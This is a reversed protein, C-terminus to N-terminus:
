LLTHTVYESVMTAVSSSIGLYDIERRIIWYEKMLTLTLAGGARKGRGMVLVFFLPLCLGHGFLVVANVDRWPGWTRGRSGGNLNAETM